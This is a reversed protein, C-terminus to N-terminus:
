TADGQPEAGQNTEAIVALLVGGPPVQHESGGSLYIRGDGLLAGLVGGIAARFHRNPHIDSDESSPLATGRLRRPLEGKALVARVRARDPAALQPAAALGLRGLLACATPADLMDDMVATAAGLPGSWGQARGLALVQPRADDTGASVLVRSCYPEEVDGVAADSLAADDIEGLALAAGLAAAGRARSKLRAYGAEDLALTGAPPLPAKVIILIVDAAAAIGADAIADRVAQATARAMAATGITAPALAAGTAHGLALAETSEATTAMAAGPRRGFAILHPLGVGETGGSAIIMPVELGADDLMRGIAHAALPRSYDNTLGNGPTKVLLCLLGGAPLQWAALAAALGRADAPDPFDLREVFTERTAIQLM